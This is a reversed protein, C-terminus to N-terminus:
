QHQKRLGPVFNPAQAPKDFVEGTAQWWDYWDLYVMDFIMVGHSKAAAMKLAEQWQDPTPRCGNSECGDHVYQLTYLGGYVFTGNDTVELSLEAAGEVSYIAAADHALADSKTIDEYYLGTMIFDLLRAYGYQHYEESTWDYQPLYTDSAWNVGENYYDPYWSGVYTSFAAEPKIAHVTAEASAFYDYINKARWEIWKKYLPGPIVKKGNAVFEVTFIDAPWNQVPEGIYEEFASRSLDSFDAYVSSYRARDLTVGDIEYNTVLERLINLEYAKVDPNIPNVFTQTATTYRAAPTFGVSSKTLDVRDGVKFNALAWTRAKGHASLVYGNAPIAPAPAGTVSRDAIKTVVDNEVVMELGWRNTPYNKGGTTYVVVTDSQRLINFGSLRYTSGTPATVIRTADYFVTQWDPHEYAPGDQATTSGESFTNVAALVKLGAKHGEEVAAQLLDYGAPYNKNAYVRSTSVHPAYASNYVTYGTSNKVDVILMNMGAAKAKAVTAAVKERSNLADLNASMDMWLVRAELGRAKLLNTTVRAESTSNAALAQGPLLAALLLLLTLWVSVSRRM